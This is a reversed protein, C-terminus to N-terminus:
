HNLWRHNYKLTCFSLPRYIVQLISSDHEMGWGPLWTWGRNETVRMATILWVWLVYVEPFSDIVRDKIWRGHHFTALPVFMLPGQFKVQLINHSVNNTHSIHHSQQPWTTACSINCFRCRILFLSFPVNITLAFTIKTAFYTMTAKLHHQTWFTREETWLVTFIPGGTWLAYLYIHTASINLWHLWSNECMQVPFHKDQIISASPPRRLLLQMQINPSVSFHERVSSVM